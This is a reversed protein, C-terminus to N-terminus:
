SGCASRVACSVSADPRTRATWSSTFRIYVCSPRLCFMSATSMSSM